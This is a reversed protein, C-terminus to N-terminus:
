RYQKRGEASLKRYSSQNQADRKAYYFRCLSFYGRVEISHQNCSFSKSNIKMQLSLLCKSSYATIGAERRWGVQEWVLAPRGRLKSILAHDQDSIDGNGHQLFLENLTRELIRIMLSGGAASGLTGGLGRFAALVSTAIAREHPETTFLLHALNYNLLAGTTFGNIVIGVTFLLIPTTQKLAYLWVYLGIFAALGILSESLGLNFVVRNARLCKSMCIFHVGMGLVITVLM